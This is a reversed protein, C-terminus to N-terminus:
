CVGVPVHGHEAVLEVALRAPVAARVAAATLARRSFTLKEKLKRQALLPCAINNYVAGLVRGVLHEHLGVQAGDEDSHADDGGQGRSAVRERRAHQLEPKEEDEEFGEERQAQVEAQGVDTTGGGDDAHGQAVGESGRLLSRQRLGLGRLPRRTRLDPEQQVPQELPRREEREQRHEPPRCDEEAERDRQLLSAVPPCRDRRAHGRQQPQDEQLLRLLDVVRGPDARQPEQPKGLDRDVEGERQLGDHHALNIRRGEAEGVADDM